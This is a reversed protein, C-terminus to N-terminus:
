LSGHEWGESVFGSGTWWISAMIGLWDFDVCGLSLGWWLYSYSRVDAATDFDGDCPCFGRRGFDRDTGAFDDELLAGVDGKRRGAAATSTTEHRCFFHIRRVTMIGALLLHAERRLAFAGRWSVEGPFRIV